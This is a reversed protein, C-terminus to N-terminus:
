LPLRIGRSKADSVSQASYKIEGAKVVINKQCLNNLVWAYLQHELALVQHALEEATIGTAVELAMQAITAGTDVGCDVLHVTCGHEKANDALARAHTDLGPYQPLLAPHINIIQDKFKEIMAPRIIQMFGALAIWDPSFFQIAAILEETYQGRQSPPVKPLVRVPISNEQAFNVGGANQNDSIIGVISFNQAARHLAQLNSGRGSVLVVIPTKSQFNIDM